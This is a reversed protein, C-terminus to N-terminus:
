IKHLVRKQRVRRQLLLNKRKFNKIIDNSNGLLIQEHISVLDFPDIEKIPEQETSSSKTGSSCQYAMFIDKKKSLGECIVNRFALISQPEHHINNIDSGEVRSLSALHLLFVFAKYRSITSLYLRTGKRKSRRCRYSFGVGGLLFFIEEEMTFFHPFLSQLQFIVDNLYLNGLPSLTVMKKQYQEVGVVSM